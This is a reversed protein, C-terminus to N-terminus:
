EWSHLLSGFEQPLVPRLSELVQALMYAGRSDKWWVEDRLPTLGVVVAVVLLLVGGRVLGFLAGLSRDAPRLGMAEIVKKAVWAILGFVFVAAIFVVAFGAAYSFAGEGGAVPLRQGVDAALWQAAFFAAVWGALSFLEFILGRWAGIALSAALVALFIWDVSRM